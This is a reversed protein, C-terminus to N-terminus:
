APVVLASPANEKLQTLCWTRQRHNQEEMRACLAVLDRDRLEKAADTVIRITVHTECAMVFLGHLDRVLGFGGGRVGPPFLARRLDPPEVGEKGAEGYKAVFPRLREAADASFSAVLGGGRRIEDNEAHDAILQGAAAVFEEQSRVLLAVYDPFHVRPVHAKALALDAAERGRDVAKGAVEVVKQALFADGAKRVQVACYKFQPQKSVPDWAALTLENAASGFSVPGGPPADPIDWSGYHFPLFLHGAPVDDGVRAPATVTGRRSSVELVDGESIGLRAADEANVQFFPEPAALHLEKSRATKTRTHFHHVVRGTLLWFPYREDPQEEPPIYDAAKLVARGKPDNARYEEPTRHGGTEIDHGFDGCEDAGTPFHRDDYLRAKGDPYQENCPWQIGSAASLKAYSLGSYDCPRGRSCEKWAEFAGEPDHWKVLPQGDKDRFDMRRAFDLFIDLDPRAEGPPEVAKHSIHVTREFNTFTGTKEGWIAAPLVLDAFQATETLFADQVVVFLGAKALIRRIRHLEPMSVAPNTSVIWLFRLVGSEALRFLAMAHTPPAWNPAIADPEVNWVRALDALDAPNQWNRLGPFEGDCGTERTNQATPQGNSQIVGCGPRGIMGRILNLNNVQCAAATAQNSQYVGQLVTSTLRQAGGLLDAAARLPEPAIGTIEAVREPPYQAVREALAEFGVTHAAVFERDVSGSRILLHMLGNLVAVNTGARPALHVDAERATDTRRTDIVVLRPPNPGRRRDLVRMWSVTQTNAVNHGVHLICDAVDFDAVTGPQGDNGFTERLAMSATATCLRTNGDMHPTRLGAHAIVSLTYYEELFLQGTNYVGLAGSTYKERVENARAVLLGMAEDWSAERLRGGPKGGERILPRTLRDPSNNAVWAHLGKPGLRGRNVRDDGRGRVGVIKGDKVGIDLGCGNTCLVCASQVWREPDEVTREDASVPWRGEGEFPTREGWVDRTSERTERPM